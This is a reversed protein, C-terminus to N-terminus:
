FARSSTTWPRRRMPMLRADMAIQNRVLKYSEIVPELEQSQGTLLPKKTSDDKFFLKMQDDGNDNANEELALWGQQKGRFRTLLVDQVLEETVINAM